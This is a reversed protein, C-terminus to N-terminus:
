QLTMEQRTTFWAGPPTLEIGLPIVSLCKVVETRTEGRPVNIGQTRLTGTEDFALEYFFTFPTPTKGRSGKGPGCAKELDPRKEDLAARVEQAAEGRTVRNPAASPAARPDARPPEASLLEGAAATSTPAGPAGTPRAALGAYLGLGVLAGGLVIAGPLLFESKM